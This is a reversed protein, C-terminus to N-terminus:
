PRKIRRLTANIKITALCRRQRRILASSRLCQRSIGFGISRNAPLPNFPNFSSAAKFAPSTRARPPGHILAPSRRSFSPATRPQGPWRGATTLPAPTPSSAAVASWGWYAAPIRISGGTDSGLAGLVMGTAVAAGAGSLSSGADHAPNWPARAPPWPLDFSPGGRALKYTTLTRPDEAMRGIEVTSSRGWGRRTAAASPVFM